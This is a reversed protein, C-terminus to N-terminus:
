VKVEEAWNNPHYAYEATIPIGIDKGSEEMLYKLKNVIPLNKVGGIPLDFVIEDHVQLTMFGGIKSSELYEGCRIMARCTVEMATGQIKYNLPLTPKIRGWDDKGCQIPYGPQGDLKPFTRVYGFRNAEEIAEQNLAAMKSLNSDLLRHAGVKHAAADVTGSEEMAGYQKGFGANKVWQYLTDKYKKKFDEEKRLCDEFEDKYIIHCNLLHFSGYYPPEDPNEFLRIMVEEGAKYAPLVLELNKFDLSWWERGKKPGFMYRLNADSLKSINQGNPNSCTFRLTDSGTANFSPHLRYFDTDETKLGFRNYSTSYGIATNCGRNRKLNKIFVYGSSNTPLTAMWHDIAQKNISPADTKKNKKKVKVEPLKFRKFIVEHLAKSTGNKPLQKMLGGSLGICIKETALEEATHKKLLEQRRPEKFTIGRSELDFISKILKRRELYVKWLNQEQLLQKHIKWIPLTVGSDWNAYVSCSNWYSHSKPLNKTKAYARPTWYDSEWQKEGKNSPMMKICFPDDEKAIKWDKFEKRILKRVEQVDNHLRQEHPYIDVRLHKQALFTLDHDEGSALLHASYVTDHVKPWWKSKWKVGVSTLARIDFKANHFILEDAEDLYKAIEYIDERPVEPQRTTPDVFWEWHLVEQNELAITVLFPKVGHFFDLGATETDCALIM